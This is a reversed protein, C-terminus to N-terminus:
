FMTYAGDQEFQQTFGIQEYLHVAYDDTEVSLSLGPLRQASTAQALATLLAHGVGPEAAIRSWEWRWSPSPWM